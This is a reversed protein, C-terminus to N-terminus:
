LKRYYCEAIERTMQSFFTLIFRNGLTTPKIRGIEWVLNEMNAYYERTERYDARNQMWKRKAYEKEVLTRLTYDLAKVESQHWMIAQTKLKLRDTIWCSRESFSDLYRNSLRKNCDGCAWCWPGCKHEVKDRKTMTQFSVPIVHDKQNGADGCYTCCGYNGFGFVPLETM